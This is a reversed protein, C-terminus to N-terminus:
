ALGKLLAVNARSGRRRHEAIAQYEPSTYWREAEAADPFRLLVTRTHKWEGELVTPSEEVALLEGRYRQWIPLFGTVYKEYEARDHITLEAVMYVPM